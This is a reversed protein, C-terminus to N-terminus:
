CVQKSQTAWYPERLDRKLIKGAATLPLPESRWEFSRPCKYSAILNKCHDQLEAETASCDTRFRVIAHVKEGWQTCPIGIVACELVAPHRYLAGEVETSYVNEGGSVIMDKVRDVVYLYGEDDFYGVDGTHLWGNRLTEATATENRWYGQMVNPGRACIEGSQHPPLARDDEDVVILEVGLMPQGASRLHHEHQDNLLLTVCPSAETQGYAQVFGVHPWLARAREIVAEPM